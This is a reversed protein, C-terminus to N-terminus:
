AKKKESVLASFDIHSLSRVLDDNEKWSFHTTSLRPLYTRTVGEKIAVVVPIGRALAYGVEILMGESKEDSNLLVIVFDCEDMFALARFIYDEPDLTEKAALSQLDHDYFNVYVDHGAERLSASVPALLADVDAPDAGTFRYSIFGRM